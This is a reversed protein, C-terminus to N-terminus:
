RAVAAMAAGAWGAALIAGVIVSLRGGMVLPLRLMALLALYASALGTLAYFPLLGHAVLPPMLFWLPTLGLLIVFVTDRIPWYRSTVPLAALYNQMPAHADRLTRYIGSLVLAIVAMALITTPVSRDDLDFIMILRATGAALGLATALRMATLGPHAGLVKCQVRLWMFLWQSHRLSRAPSPVNAAGTRKGRSPRVSDPATLTAAITVCALFLLVWAFAPFTLASGLCITAIGAGLAMLAHRELAALQVALTASMLVLLAFAQYFGAAKPVALRSAIAVAVFILMFGDAVALVTVDVSRRTLPSMPLTAAYRAFGGGVINDRQPLIGLIAILQLASLCALHWFLGHEPLVIATLVRAPLGLIAIIPIGPVALGAIVFWQWHRQLLRGSAKMYWRLRLATFHLYTQLRRIWASAHM